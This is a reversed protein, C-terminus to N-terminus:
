STKKPNTRIRRQLFPHDIYAPSTINCYLFYFPIDKDFRGKSNWNPIKSIDGEFAVPKGVPMPMKAMVTPYLSNVDYYYLKEKSGFFNPTKANHNIFVDVAGGSYAERIDWEARGLLQFITDKPM